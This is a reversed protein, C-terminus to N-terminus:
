CTAICMATALCMSASLLSASEILAQLETTLHSRAVRDGASIGTQILDMDITGTTPDVATQQMAVQMADRTWKMLPSDVDVTCAARQWHQNQHQHEASQQSRHSGPHLQAATRPPSGVQMLRLGERVDSPEVTPSLRMRALAEALRVGSELQRPTATIVQLAVGWVQCV